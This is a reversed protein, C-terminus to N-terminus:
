GGPHLRLHHKGLDTIELYLHWADDPIAAHIREPWEIAFCWPSRMFDQIMLADLDEASGLRYADLHILQRSGNYITYLNFTPSTVPETIAWARALGRIFTTKGAGLDGHLALLTDAPLSRALASALSETEAASSTAVGAMLQDNIHM